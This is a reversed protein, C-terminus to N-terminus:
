TAMSKAPFNPLGLHSYARGLTGGQNRLSIRYAWVVTRGASHVSHVVSVVFLDGNKCPGHGLWLMGQGAVTSGGSCAMCVVM